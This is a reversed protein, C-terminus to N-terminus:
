GKYLQPRQAVVAKASLINFMTTNKLNRLILSLSLSLVTKREEMQHNECILSYIVTYVQIRLGDTVRWTYMFFGM